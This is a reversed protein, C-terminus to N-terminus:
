VLFQVPTGANCTSEKAASSGPFGMLFHITAEFIANRNTNELAAPDNFYYLLFCFFYLKLVEPIKSLM